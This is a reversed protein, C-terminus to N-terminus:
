KTLIMKKSEFYDNVSLTYVYAGSALKEANFEVSYNGKSKVENVLEAVERGLIDYVKLVVHGSTPLSYNIKTVPNFPNPYNAGLSYKTVNSGAFIEVENSYKFQGNLDIQKLRYLYKEYDVNKDEFTYSKTSNSNGNGSVFGVKKWNEKEDALIKREIDFGYNNVESATIWNLLVSNYKNSASFSALEVPLAADINTEWLGRGFTGARLKDTGGNYFIELETVVVNPLGTNYSVWVNLGDKAYVGVDTGVFLVNRDTANKNQVVCMVPLNPLGTSINTWSSGGDTSQYVKEGTTYGGYTIWVTNADTNKIAIYTISNSNVPLTIANWNTAGGDTTKWMNTQDAAYLVSTNSPAIALSRLKATASLSQSISTWTNGRDMTKWVKEYGAYLIASNTPDMIYPTVWAGARDASTSGINNSITTTAQTSFGNTNRYITGNSYTSYMYSTTNNFDIICEMGDGGTADAWTNAAGIYKKSGNDQLGALIVNADTQSIGIRYIQSIVLGNSLDTWNTGGNTTKYIGGDNGEYLTTSNQFALAHKDAHVEPAGSTNYPATSTWMNNITWNLGGDVSKWTNVGGVYVTNADSPSVTICLDYTGQGKNGGTTGDSYYGLLYKTSDQVQSFSSGSDTSKYVGRFKSNNTASLMYVIAPNAVSVGLENRYGGAAIAASLTWSDGTNTSRNIYSSGYGVSSAYIITPDGPKFEMDIWLNSTKLTWSTGGNTSKYIGDSTSALLIQNDTPHILLRYVNKSSSAAYTLGTTNWTAGGDTTKLVGISVNDASQGGGLSWMSGGDRDGTAIYIINTNTPDIAIDSVGLVSLNDNLNTWSSGGNITKWIGGSPSGVWFTNNDTPHFVVCNIRGLGAYGGSSTNTGLNTWNSTFLNTKKLNQHNAKYKEYEIVSNTVPFQGTQADTRQEWFYEWRKYLKWGPVKTKADNEQIYGNKVGLSNWYANMISKVDNFTSNSNIRNQFPSIKNLSQNFIIGNYALFFLLVITKVLNKM